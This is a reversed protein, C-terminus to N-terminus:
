EGWVGGYVDADDGIDERDERSQREERDEGAMTAPWPIDLRTGNVHVVVGFRDREIEVVNCCGVGYPTVANVAAQLQKLTREQDPTDTM